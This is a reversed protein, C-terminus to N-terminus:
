QRIPRADGISIKHKLSGTQGFNDPGKAFLDEYIYRIFNVTGNIEVTVPIKSRFIKTGQVLIKLPFITGWSGNKKLLFPGGRSVQDPDHLNSLSDTTCKVCTLFDKGQRSSRCTWM